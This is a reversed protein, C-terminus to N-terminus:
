IQKEKFKIRELLLYFLYLIGLMTYFHLISVFNCGNLVAEIIGAEFSACNLGGIFCILHWMDRSCMNTLLKAM